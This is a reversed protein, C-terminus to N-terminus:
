ILSTDKHKKYMDKRNAQLTQLGVEFNYVLLRRNGSICPVQNYYELTCDLMVSIASKGIDEKTVITRGTSEVFGHVKKPEFASVIVDETFADFKKTQTTKAYNNKGNLYMEALFDYPCEIKHKAFLKQLLVQVRQTKGKKLNACALLSRCEDGDLQISFNGKCRTRLRGEGQFDPEVWEYKLKNAPLADKDSMNSEWHSYMDAFQKNIYLKTRTLHADSSRYGCMRGLLAQATTESKVSYDYVMYIYDKFDSDLTIGARFAGKILVLLPKGDIHPMDVVDKSNCNKLNFKNRAILANIHQNLKQYDIRKTGSYMEYIDFNNKIFQDSLITDFRKTRIIVVGNVNDKQMRSYADYIYDFIMGDETIDDPNAEHIMGHQLMETVGVYGQGPQLQIIKKCNATDSFIEDFPTASVSVLYINRRILDNTNKWNIKHKLMFKTLINRENSGYHAEDIFIISNELSTEEFKMLDSNKLIFFHNTSLNKRRKGVYTNDINAKIVQNIIRETTQDKLGADNMGTIFFFKDVGMERYLPTCTIINTIASTVGTKGSQMKASLIVSNRRTVKRLLDDVVEKACEIQSDHIFTKATEDDSSRFKGNPLMLFTQPDITTSKM